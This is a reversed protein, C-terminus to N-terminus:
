RIAGASKRLRKAAELAKGCNWKTQSLLNAKASQSSKTKKRSQLVEFLHSVQVGNKLLLGSTDTSVFSPARTAMRSWPAFSANQYLPSM